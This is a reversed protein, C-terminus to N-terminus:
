HNTPCLDKYECYRCYQNVIPPFDNHVNAMTIDDISKGFAILYKENYDVPVHIPETAELTEMLRHYFM